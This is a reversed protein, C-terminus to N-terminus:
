FTLCQNAQLHNPSPVFITRIRAEESNFNSDPISPITWETNSLSKHKSISQSVRDPSRYLHISPILHLSLTYGVPPKTIPLTKRHFVIEASASNSIADSIRLVHGQCIVDFAVTGKRPACKDTITPLLYPRSLEKIQGSQEKQGFM